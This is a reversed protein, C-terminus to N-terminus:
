SLFCFYPYMYMLSLLQQSQFYSVLANELPTDSGDIPIEENLFMEEIQKYPVKDNIPLHIKPNPVKTFTVDKEDNGANVDDKEANRENGVDLHEINPHKVYDVNIANMLTSDGIPGDDYDLNVANVAKTDGINQDDVNRAKSFNVDGVENEFNSDIDRYEIVHPFRITSANGTKEDCGANVIKMDLIEIDTPGVNCKNESISYISYALFLLKLLRETKVRFFLM